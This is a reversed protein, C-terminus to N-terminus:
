SRLMRNQVVYVLSRMTIFEKAFHTFPIIKNNERGRNLLIRIGDNVPKFLLSLVKRAPEIPLMTGKPIPGIDLIEAGNFWIEAFDHNKVVAWQTVYEM